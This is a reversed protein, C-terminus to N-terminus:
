QVVIPARDPRVILWATAAVLAGVSAPLLDILHNSASLAKIAYIWGGLFYVAFLNWMVVGTVFGAAMAIWLARWRRWRMVLYAPIGVVTMIVYSAIAGVVAILMLGAGNPPQPGDAATYTVAVLPVWLPAVLFAVAHRMFGGTV